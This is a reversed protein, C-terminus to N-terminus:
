RSIRRSQPPPRRNPLTQIGRRGTNRMLVLNWQYCINPTLTKPNVMGVDMATNIQESRANATVAIIPVHSTVDGTEELRRIEKTCTLGDMVPMEQDMLIVSIEIEKGRKDKWFTSERLRDLCEGGHNAVHVVCGMNKLQKSLVRQNVLNDEVVLIKLIDKRAPRQPLTTSSTVITQSDESQTRSTTPLLKGTSSKRPGAGPFHDIEEKPATSRRAKIYFAFTSGEGSKSAVGIEGGQLEVLERSIFLGLGSGGYQVHTRPSAQSFRLFLLKKEDDNLGRGTDQVAFHLYVKEGTGWEAAKTLDKRKSRTPFYSVISGEKSPRELSAALTVNIVRKEQTTTFKIANTTLNILVQLLRSPDLRVWDIGLREISNDVQFNLKIDATHVEGDFMKLARQVVTMPQIDCPTVLLLASDLKSLTLIDDVIRKQHQACLAIIGSADIANKVLEETAGPPFNNAQLDTLTTTIEDACQLIASLPNRMEHSTIDIFNEQQRKMEVAEEMRRKEFHEAWKQQSIDTVSGFIVEVKGDENKEPFASALVWTDGKNGNQDIRPSNFRIETNMPVAEHVLAWWLKRVNEQDEAKISDMWEDTDEIGRPVKTIEYWKDNLYTIKGTSDAIFIGVPAFEAMRTFKTESEVAEQTRAALQESLEIRDQAALRAAKKGRAIEEEFLVVSAMATALQRSLLQVYLSYDDDYPRRPNVGMVLFGLTSEGGTLHVPCCVASTCEDGFGRWEIGELMSADLTGDEVSLIIPRDDKIAERFVQAYYETESKLDVYPAAAPHGNPIGLSGELVCQKMSGHGLHSNSHVSSSDSDPDEGISYLLVFPADYENYELGKLCQQWFSKLDRASATKEGVERLTLMRREAIRRRTKEFAPNYLGVVSGDAGVLPIISWSFYTEELQGGSLARQIFLCDDDKMTAQGTTTASHFVEKVSEWIEAWALQYSKGMLYPHKQGALLIYAENYIAILDSGWYMAAPHPSAMILNCMSRLESPWDEIPGLSTAAWDISRAFQIHRPLAPSNPLRTWDFFGSELMANIEFHDVNGASAARLIAEGNRSGLPSSAGSGSWSSSGAIPMGMKSGRSIDTDPLDSTRHSEMSMRSNADGFYDQPEEEIAEVRDARAEVFIDNEKGFSSNSRVSVSPPNSPFSARESGPSGKILRFRKRLSCTTWTAGAYFFSPLTVDLSERDKVFSMAWAKFDSFVTTVTLGPSEHGAIGTIRELIHPMAKLSVNAYLIRLPGPEFNHQDSLDLIFTPREDQELLEIVGVQSLANLGDSKGLSEPSKGKKPLGVYSRGSGSPTRTAGPRSPSGANMSGRALKLTRVGENEEKNAKSLMTSGAESSSLRYPLSPRQNTQNSFFLPDSSLRDTSIHASACSHLDGRSKYRRDPKKSPPPGSATSLHPSVKSSARKKGASSEAQEQHLLESRLNLPWTASQSPLVPEPALASVHTPLSVGENHSIPKQKATNSTRSRKGLTPSISHRKERAKKDQSNPATFISQFVNM